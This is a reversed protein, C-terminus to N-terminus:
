LIPVVKPSFMTRVVDADITSSEGGVTFMPSPTTLVSPLPPPLTPDNATRYFQEYAPHLRIDVAGTEFLSDPGERSFLLPPASAPRNLLEDLDPTDQLGDDNSAGSGFTESNSADASLEDELSTAAALESEGHTLWLNQVSARSSAM